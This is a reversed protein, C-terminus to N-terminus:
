GNIPLWTECSDCTECPDRPHFDLRGEGLSQMIVGVLRWRTDDDLTNATLAASVATLMGDLADTPPAPQTAAVSKTDAAHAARWTAIDIIDAVATEGVLL